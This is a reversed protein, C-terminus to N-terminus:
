NRTKNTNGPDFAEVIGAVSAGSPLVMKGATTVRPTGRAELDMSTTQGCQLVSILVLM